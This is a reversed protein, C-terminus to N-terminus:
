TCVYNRVVHLQRIDTARDVCQDNCCVEGADRGGAPMRDSM